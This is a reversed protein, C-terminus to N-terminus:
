VSAFQYPNSASVNKLTGIIFRKGESTIMKHGQVKLDRAALRKDKAAKEMGHEIGQQIGMGLYFIAGFIALVAMCGCGGCAGLVILWVPPGQRRPPQYATQYSPDVM